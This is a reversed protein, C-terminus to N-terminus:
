RCSPCDCRPLVSPPKRSQLRDLKDIVEDIHGSLVHIDFLTVGRRNENLRLERIRKAIAAMRALKAKLEDLGQDETM